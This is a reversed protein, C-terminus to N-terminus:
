VIKKVESRLGEIIGEHKLERNNTFRCLYYNYVTEGYGNTGAIKFPKRIRINGINPITVECHINVGKKDDKLKFEYWTNLSCKNNCIFSHILDYFEKDSM